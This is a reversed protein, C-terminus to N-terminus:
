FFGKDPQGPMPLRFRNELPFIYDNELFLFLLVFCKVGIPMLWYRIALFIPTGAMRIFLITRNSLPILASVAAQNKNL